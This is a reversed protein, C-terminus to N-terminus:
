NITLNNRGDIHKIYPESNLVDFIYTGYKKHKKINQPKNWLIKEMYSGDECEKLIINRYYNSLCIHNNDSWGPTRTYTYNNCKIQKGFLDSQNDFVSKINKRKNFRIHKLKPNDNMDNIINQINFKRIFLFDHQIILVYKTKIYNFAHRINGTLCGFTERIVIKINPKNLIYNTLNILYKFYNINDCYDHALIINTNNDININQLSELVSKIFDISPHSIIFSCTIVVSYDMIILKYFLIM